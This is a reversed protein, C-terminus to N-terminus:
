EYKFEKINNSNLLLILLEAEVRDEERLNDKPEVFIYKSIKNNNFEEQLQSSINEYLCEAIHSDKLEISNLYGKISEKDISLNFLIANALYLSKYAFMLRKTSKTKKYNLIDRKAYGLLAKIVKYTRLYPKMFLDHVICLETNIVSDGSFLNRNFQIETSYIYDTNTETDKYQFQHNNPLFDWPNLRDMKFICFIDTDSNEDEFGYLKSGFEYRVITISQLYKHQEENIKINM